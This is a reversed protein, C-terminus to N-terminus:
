ISNNKIPTIIEGNLYLEKKGKTEPQWGSNLANIILSKITAPTVKREQPKQEGSALENHYEFTSVLKQGHCNEKEVIVDISMDNGTVKYRYKINEIDITRSGKRPLTIDDRRLCLTLNFFESQLKVQIKQLKQSYLKSKSSTTSVM